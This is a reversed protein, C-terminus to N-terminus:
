YHICNQLFSAFIGTINLWAKLFASLRKKLYFHTGIGIWKSKKKRFAITHIYVYMCTNILVWEQTNDKKWTKGFCLSLGQCVVATPLILVLLFFDLLEFSSRDIDLCGQLSGSISLHLLLDINRYDCINTKTEYVVMGKSYEVCKGSRQLQTKLPCCATSGLLGFSYLETWLIIITLGGQYKRHFKGDLKFIDFQLFRTKKYGKNM